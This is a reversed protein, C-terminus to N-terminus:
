LIMPKSAALNAGPETLFRGWLFLSSFSHIIWLERRTETDKDRKDESM